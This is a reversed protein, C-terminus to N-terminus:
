KKKKQRRRVAELVDEPIKRDNEELFINMRRPDIRKLAKLLLIYADLVESNRERCLIKAVRFGVEVDTRKKLPHLIVLVTSIRRWKNSSQAWHTLYSADHPNDRLIPGLLENCLLETNQATNMYGILGEIRWFTQMDFHKVFKSLMQIGINTEELTKTKILQVALNCAGDLDKKARFYKCYKNALKKLLPPNVGYIKVKSQGIRKRLKLRYSINSHRKLKNRIELFISRPSKESM